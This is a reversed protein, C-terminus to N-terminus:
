NNSENWEDDDDNEEGCEYTAIHYGCRIEYGTTHVFDDVDVGDIDIGKSDCDPDDGDDEHNDIPDITHMLYNGYSYITDYQHSTHSVVAYIFDDDHFSGKM